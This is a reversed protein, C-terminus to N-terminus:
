PGFLAVFIDYTGANTLTTTGFTANGMFYGAVLTRGAADVAIANGAEVFNGGARSAWLFNGDRDCKAVFVDTTGAAPAPLITTGFTASASFSGTIWSDGNAAVAIGTAVENGSGGAKRAWLMIGATDYKILLVDKSSSTLAAHPTPPTVTGSFTTLFYASGESDAGIASGDTAAFESGVSRVWQFAGTGDYKAIFHNYNYTTGVHTINVPGPFTVTGVYTASVYVNGSPDTAVGRARDYLTSGASQAWLFNGASDMKAVFADTNGASTLTINGTATPFTASGTFWGALLVNGDADIALSQGVDEGAGGARKAWLLNGDTDYKAVLIEQDTPDLIPESSTLTTATGFTATGTFYGTVYVNGSDDVKVSNGLDGATGGGRRAWALNGSADYKALFFDQSGSSTLDTTDFDATNVFYGTVFRNGNADFAVGYAVDVGLYISVDASGARAAWLVAGHAYLNVSTSQSATGAADACHVDVVCSTGGSAAAPTFSYTATGPGTSTVTGACTDSEGVSLTVPDAEPDSCVADYTYPTGEYASTAATSQLAPLNNKKSSSNGCAAILAAGLLLLLSKSTTTKM